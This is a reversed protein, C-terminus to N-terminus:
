DSEYGCTAMTCFCTGVAVAYAGSAAAMALPNAHKKRHEKTYRLRRVPEYALAPPGFITAPPAAVVVAVATFVAAFALGVAGAVAAPPAAAVALGARRLTLSAKAQPSCDKCTSGWLGNDFHARRCKCAARARGWSFSHGCLCRMHDCGGNKIIPTYCSPCFKVQTGGAARGIERMESPTPPARPLRPTYNVSSPSPTRQIMARAQRVGDLEAESSLGLAIRDEGTLPSKCCPCSIPSRGNHRQGYEHICGTCFVHTCALTVSNPPEPDNIEDLCIACILSDAVQLAQKSRQRQEDEHVLRDQVDSAQVRPRMAPADPLLQVGLPSRSPRPATEAEERM